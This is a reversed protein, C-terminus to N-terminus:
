CFGLLWKESEIRQSTIVPREVPKINKVEPFLEKLINSLGINMSSKISLVEIINNRSLSKNNIM